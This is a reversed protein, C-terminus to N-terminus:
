TLCIVTVILPLIVPWNMGCASKYPCKFLRQQEGKVSSHSCKDSVVLRGLYKAKQSGFM